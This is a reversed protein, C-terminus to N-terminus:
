PREATVQQALWTEVKALEELIMPWHAESTGTVSRWRDSVGTTWMNYAEAALATAHEVPIGRLQRDLMQIFDSNKREAMTSEGSDNQGMDEILWPAYYTKELLLNTAALVSRALDMDGYDSIAGAAQHVAMDGTGARVGTWFGDGANNFPKVEEALAQWATDEIPGFLDEYAGRAEVESAFATDDRYPMNANHWGGLTNLIATVYVSIPRNPYEEINRAAEAQLENPVDKGLHEQLKAIVAALTDNVVLEIGGFLTKLASKSVRQDTKM